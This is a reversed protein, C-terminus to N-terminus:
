LVETTLDDRIRFPRGRWYITHGCMAAVWVPLALAERALWVPLWSKLTRRGAYTAVYPNFYHKVFVPTDTSGNSEINGFGVLNHFHWYDITVWCLMHFMFWLWSWFRSGELFLASIAFTGIIGSIFSETTPEVLTAVIVMYRRVRLWRIRRECYSTVSFKTLPQIVSDCTMASRGGAAWICMAIMNDEAIYEAFHQIGTGPAVVKQKLKAAVASDLVSRRYLNSKGMVCPEIAVTNIATYFKSHSTLMFMEDLKAGWEIGDILISLPLHHVIQTEPKANLEAVSRALTGPSVWANSDLVWVIDYKAGRYGKALNNIKPNPGYTEQEGSVMIHADVNPYERILQSAVAIAADGESEVCFIVEFLPYEQQMASILCANLEPDIGKLPRLITVGETQTLPHKSWVRTNKLWVVIAGLVSLGVVILYWIFLVVAILIIVAGHGTGELGISDYDSM